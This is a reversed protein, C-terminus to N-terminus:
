LSPTFREGPQMALAFGAFLHAIRNLDRLSTMEVTTHMYRIPLSVLGCPIGGAVFLADTDTGSGGPTAARQLPISLSAAVEMLRAVVEPQM